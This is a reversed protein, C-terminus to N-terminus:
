DREKYITVKVSDEGTFQLTIPPYEKRVNEVGTVNDEYFSALVVHDDENVIAGVRKLLEAEVKDFTDNVLDNMRIEKGNIEVNSNLAQEVAIVAAATKMQVLISLLDETSTFRFWQDQVRALRMISAEVVKRM